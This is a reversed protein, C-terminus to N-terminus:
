STLVKVCFSSQAIVINVIETENVNIYMQRYLYTFQQTGTFQGQHKTQKNINIKVDLKLRINYINWSKKQFNIICLQINNFLYM